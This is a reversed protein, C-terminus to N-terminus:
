TVDVKGKVEVDRQIEVTAPKVVMANALDLKTPAAIAVSGDGCLELVTRNAADDTEAIHRLRKGHLVVDPGTDTEYIDIRQRPAGLMIPVNGESLSVLVLDGRQWRSYLAAQNERVYGPVPQVAELPEGDGSQWAPLLSLEEAVRQSSTAPEIAVLQAHAGPGVIRGLVTIPQLNLAAARIEHKPDPTVRLEFRTNILGAKRTLEFSTIIESSFLAKDNSRVTMPLVPISLGDAVEHTSTSSKLLSELLHWQEEVVSEAQLSLGNCLEGLGVALSWHNTPLDLIMNKDVDGPNFTVIRWAEDELARAEGVVVRSGRAMAAVARASRMLSSEGSWTVICGGPVIAGEIDASAMGRRVEAHARPAAVQALLTTLSQHRRRQHVTISGLKDVGQPAQEVKEPIGVRLATQGDTARALAVLKLSRTNGESDGIIVSEMPSVERLSGENLGHLYVLLYAAQGVRVVHEVRLCSFSKDGIQVGWM